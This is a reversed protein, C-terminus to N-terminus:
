VWDGVQVGEGLTDLKALHQVNVRDITADGDM